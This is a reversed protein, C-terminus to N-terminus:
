ITIGVICVDDVQELNGKWKELVESFLQKQELLPKGANALILDNLQKYKFKKGKPGGFQDAFGDTYVYLTEGKRLTISYSMFSEDKVGIGVPMRDYEKEIINNGSVVIPAINAAAYTIQGNTKDICLLVGDFGDKQEEKNVSSVLKKRVYNFIENPESIIRENIAENLFSINLLSMFAGPVGHGTSDCVALYFKNNRQTAWYFDGSVIDKPNFYVFHDPLNKKLFDPHALLTHQIKKAYNISDLIEKQKQEVLNKQQLIMESAQKKQQLSKFVFVAFVSVLLLGFVTSYIIINKRKSEEASKLELKDMEAKALTKIEVEKNNFEIQFQTKISAKRIEENSMSDKLQYFLENMKIAEKYNGKSNYIEFLKKAANKMQEVVGIERAIDLAQKFFGAAKDEQKLAQYVSGLYILNSSIERKYNIDRNITLSSNFCDIAKQFLKKELYLSGINSLVLAEQYRDGTSRIIKLSKNYCEEAKDFERKDLFTQGLNNLVYSTQSIDGTEYSLDLSKNFFDIAKETDKQEFYLAGLKNLTIAEQRKDKITKSIELSLMFYDIAKLCDGQENFINGINGLTVGQQRKDGTKECLLLSQRYYELAKNYEGEEKFLNGINNLTISAQKVNGSKESVRFSANFYKFASDTNNRSNYNVGIGNLTKAQGYVDNIENQIKLTKHYLQISKDYESKVYYAAAQTGLAQAQYKKDNKKLAFNYQLKAYYFASDPASFLYGDWALKQIANLRATDHLTPNNWVKLLSDSNIQSFVPNNLLLLCVFLIPKQINFLIMKMLKIPTFNM